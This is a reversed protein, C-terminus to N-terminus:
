GPTVKVQGRALKHSSFSTALPMRKIQSTSGDQCDWRKRLGQKGEVIWRRGEDTWGMSQRAEGTEGGDKTGEGKQKFCSLPHLTIINSATWRSLDFLFESNDKRNLTKPCPTLNFTKFLSLNRWHITPNLYCTKTKFIKM